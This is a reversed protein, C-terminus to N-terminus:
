FDLVIRFGKDNSCKAAWGSIRYSVRYDYGMSNGRQIRSTGSAPGKPNVGPSYSYYDRAHWDNCWEWVNGVMDYLAYGNVGSTTQYSSQSGPWNFDAKRHLQGDYFDVPTTWPLDGTRYPNASGWYNAQSMVTSDGWPYRKGSLGGRAAYEWEAETPLRFGKKTFDCTWTSLDYCAEFGEQKSKWNSFAVAGFWSVNTMPHYQKDAEVTFTVDTFLIRSDSDAEDTDCYPDDGGVAYVRGERVEIQGRSLSNNLFECYQQNTVAFCTMMFSDLYVSHVPLEERSGESFHDGMEFTGSPILVMDHPVNFGTTLWQNAMAAVNNFDTASWQGAMVAFDNFDVFCDGTLDASPCDALCLSGSFLFVTV